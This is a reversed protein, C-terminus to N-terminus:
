ILSMRRYAFSSVNVLRNDLNSPEQKFAQEMRTQQTVLNDVMLQRREMERQTRGREM